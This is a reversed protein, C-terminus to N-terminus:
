IALKRSNKLRHFAAATEFETYSLCNKPIAALRGAPFVVAACFQFRDAGLEDFDQPAAILGDFDQRSPPVGGVGKLPM